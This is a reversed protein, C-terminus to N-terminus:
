VSLTRIVAFWLVEFAWAGRLPTRIRVRAKFKGPGAATIRKCAIPAFHVLSSGSAGLPKLVESGIPM